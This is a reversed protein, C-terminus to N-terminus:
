GSNRNPKPKFLKWCWALAFILGLSSAALLIAGPLPNESNSTSAPVATRTPTGPLQMAKWSPQRADQRTQSSGNSSDRGASASSSRSGSSGTSGTKKSHSPTSKATPTPTPSPAAVVNSSGITPTTAIQWNPGGDPVRVYSQNDPFANPLSVSDVVTGNVYLSLDTLNIQPSAFHPFIVYFGHPAIVAGSPFPYTQNGPPSPYTQNEGNSIFIGPNSLAFAQNSTNYLEIWADNDFATAAQNACNWHSQPYPLVENIFLVGPTSPPSVASSSITPNGAFCPSTQHTHAYLADTMGLVLTICGVFVTSALVILRVVVM